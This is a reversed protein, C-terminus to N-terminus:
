VGYFRNLNVVIIEIKTCVTKESECILFTRVCVMERASLMSFVMKFSIMESRSKLM